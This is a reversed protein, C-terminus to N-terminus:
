VARYCKCDRCYRVKGHLEGGEDTLALQLKPPRKSGSARLDTLKKNLFEVTKPISLDGEPMYNVVVAEPACAICINSRKYAGITTAPFQGVDKFDQCTLCFDEGYMDLQARQGQSPKKHTKLFDTIEAKVTTLEKM